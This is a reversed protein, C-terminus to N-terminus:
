PQGTEFLARLAAKRDEDLKIRIIAVLDARGGKKLPLGRGKIRLAHGSDTWPEIKVAIKGDPTTLAVKGGKVAVGLPVDLDVILKRGEVRMADDSPKISVKALVDGRHGAPGPAGQGKLRITQGDEVYDPVNVAITRGDPLSLKAKGGKIAQEVDIQLPLEVDKGKPPKAPRPQGGPRDGFMQDFPSGGGMGGAQGGRGMGGFGGGFMTNLIDEPNMGGDGRQSRRAGARPDFGDFGSFPNGGPYAGFTQKGEADIEGRDFKKRTEPDGIIENARSVESFREKAKPDDRNTDPHYKKALKRFASKIDSESASKPVGLVTYPDRM